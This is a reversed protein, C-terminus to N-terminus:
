WEVVDLVFSMYSVASNALCTHELGRLLLTKNEGGGDFVVVIAEVVWLLVVKVAFLSDSGDDGVSGKQPRIHM